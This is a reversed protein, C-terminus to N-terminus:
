LVHRFGDKIACKVASSYEASPEAFLKLKAKAEEQLEISASVVGTAVYHVYKLASLIDTRRSQLPKRKLGLGDITAKGKKSNNVPFPVEGRFAIHTEPDEFRPNIFLPKELSVDKNPHTCRQQEDEIPFHNRKERQNCIQCCFLLNSWDYALWFYGPRTLKSSKTRRWGGKPRFHEIDGYAIHTVKSECFCCKEHQAEILATKVSEHGYIANKFEFKQRGSEFAARNATLLDEDAQTAVIGEPQLVLPADCHKVRIM